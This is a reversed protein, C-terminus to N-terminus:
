VGILGHLICERLTRMEDNWSQGCIYDAGSDTLTLRSYIGYRKWFKLPVRLSAVLREKTSQRCRKGVMGLIDQIQLDNLRNNTDELKGYKADYILNDLNQQM